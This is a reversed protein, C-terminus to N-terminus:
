PRDPRDSGELRALAAPQHLRQLNDGISGMGGVLVLNLSPHGPM